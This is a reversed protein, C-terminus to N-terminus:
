RHAHGATRRRALWLGAVLAIAASVVWGILYSRSGSRWEVIMEPPDRLAQAVTYNWEVTHSTNDVRQSNATILEGPPHLKYNLHNNSLLLTGLGDLVLEQALGRSTTQPVVPLKRALHIKRSGAEVSIAGLLSTASADAVNRAHQTLKEISDFTASVKAIVRGSDRFTQMSTVHVGPIRELDSKVKAESMDRELGTKGRVLQEPVSVTFNVHGSLDDNLWMEEDYDLCGALCCACAAAGVAQLLRIRLRSLSKPATSM